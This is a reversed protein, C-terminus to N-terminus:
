KQQLSARLAASLAPRARPQVSPDLRAVLRFDAPLAEPPGRELIVACGHAGAFELFAAIGSAAPNDAYDAWIHGITLGAHADPGVGLPRLSDNLHFMVSHSIDCRSIDRAFVSKLQALWASAAAYSSIDVGSTWLHATDVCLGFLEGAPDLPHLARFLAAIKEPTEYHAEGPRVAPIEFYVRIRGGVDTNILRAAYKVVTAIPAKPLHVVLGRMGARACVAIEDRIYRAADPDGGWPPAVYASHAYLAIHENALEQLEHAEAETLTIERKYPGGVFIQAARLDVGCEDAAAARAARIHDAISVAHTKAISVAHTKAISVAHTKAHSARDRNVHCGFEM